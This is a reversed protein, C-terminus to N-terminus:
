GCMLDKIESIRFEMVNGTEWKLEKHHKSLLRNLQKLKEVHTLGTSGWCRSPIKKKTQSISHWTAMNVWKWLIEFLFPEYDM